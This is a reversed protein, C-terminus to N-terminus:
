ATVHLHTDVNLNQVGFILFTYLWTHLFSVQGGLRLGHLQHVHVDLHISSANNDGRNHRTRARGSPSRARPPGM